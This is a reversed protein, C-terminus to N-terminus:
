NLKSIDQAMHADMASGFKAVEADITDVGPIPTTDLALTVEQAFIEMKELNNGLTHQIFDGIKTADEYSVASATMILVATGHKTISKQESKM